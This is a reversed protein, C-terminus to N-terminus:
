NGNILEKLELSSCSSPQKHYKIIQVSYFRSLYDKIKKSATIGAEDPDLFIKVKIIPLNEMIIRQEDSLSTGFMGLCNYIGNQYLAWVDAAGEVLVVENSKNIFEKANWLNYLYSNNSFNKSNKWKISKEICPEDEKHYNDCIMCKEYPKRGIIGDIKSKNENFIPVMIHDSFYHNNNQCYKIGFLDLTEQKIGRNTYFQLNNSFQDLYSLPFNYTKKNENIGRCLIKSTMIFKRNPNHPVKTDIGLNNLWVILQKYDYGLVMMAFSVISANNDHCNHSYCKWNPEYNDDIYICANKDKGNHIPCGFRIQEEKFYEFDIGLEDLVLEINTAMKQNLSM